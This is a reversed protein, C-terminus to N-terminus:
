VDKLITKLEAGLKEISLKEQFFRYGNMSVTHRIKEHTRIFQIKEAIKVPTSESTFIHEDATLLERIASTDATLIPKGVGLAQFLKNPIVRQAKDSDGFIGLLLDAEAMKQSLQNYPIWDLLRINVLEQENIKDEIESRLQGLGVLTFIIDTESKLISAAEIIKEIGHLPIFKGIFMVNFHNESNITQEPFFIRDDAGVFLRKFNIDPLDLENRFYQINAETDLIVIDSMKCASRDLFRMLRAKPSFTTFYGRDVIVTDYLSVLPNFVLKKRGFFAMMKALFIDLHGIYGVLIIDHKPIFFVYRFLLRLQAIFFRLIFTISFGFNKGKTITKEWLPVHCEFVTVANRRLGELVISNRPYNKEYTGFYCVSM